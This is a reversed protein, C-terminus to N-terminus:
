PNRAAQLQAERTAKQPAVVIQDREVYGESADHLVRIRIFPGAGEPLAEIETATHIEPGREADWRPARYLQYPMGAWSAVLTVPGPPIRRARYITRLDDAGATLLKVLQLARTSPGRDARGMARMLLGGGSSARVDVKTGQVVPEARCSVWRVGIRPRSWQGFLGRRRYEIVRAEEPSLVEFRYPAVGLLQEMTAFVERPPVPVVFRWGFAHKSPM